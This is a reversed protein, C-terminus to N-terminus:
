DTLNRVLCGLYAWDSGNANKACFILPSQRSFSGNAQLMEALKKPNSSSISVTVIENDSCTVKFIYDTGEISVKDFRQLLKTYRVAPNTFSYYSNLNNDVFRTSLETPFTPSAVFVTGPDLGISLRQNQQANVLFTIATAFLAFLIKKMM